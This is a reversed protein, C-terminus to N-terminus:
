VGEKQNAIPQNAADRRKEGHPRCYDGYDDNSGDFLRVVAMQKCGDHRCTRNIDMLYFPM